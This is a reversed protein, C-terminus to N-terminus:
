RAQLGKKEKNGWDGNEKFPRTTLLIHAHPNGEKWHIVTDACMGKDVFQKICYDHLLKQNQSLSLEVPM